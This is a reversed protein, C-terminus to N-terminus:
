LYFKRYESPKLGTLKKFLKSFHKLDSYGVELAISSVSISTEKLLEKAKNIRLSILYDLFNVGTEKKFLSSFYNSNFGVMKSVDELTIPQNYNNQMYEKVFRIPKIDHQKKLSVINDLYKEIESYLVYFIEKVSNCSNIKIQYGEFFSIDSELIFSHNKISFLFIEIIEEIIDFILNGTVNKNEIVAKEIGNIWSLICEKNLTDIYNQFQQKKENSIFSKANLSSNSISNYEIIKGSGVLIKERIASKTSKLLSELDNIDNSINSAGINVKLDSFLDNMANIGDIVNKLYKRINKKINDDYNLICYIGLDFSYFEMDYCIPKFVSELIWLTKDKLLKNLNESYINYNIVVHLIIAQFYGEKFNYFFEQNITLIDFKMSNKYENFLIDILFGTRVKEKATEIYRLNNESENFQQKKIKYKEVMKNLADLFERKNIPKLLYDEVGYKIANKAYDFHKYGSIIIFDIDKNIEKGRKILELGNYGPMRIDTIVLDPKKEEIINLADIGNLAYSIIEMGLNQWEVLNIILKCVKEEDDVILVKILAIM